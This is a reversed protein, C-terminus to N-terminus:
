KAKKNFDVPFTSGSLLLTAKRDGLFTLSGSYSYSVNAPGNGGITISISGSVAKHTTADMMVNNLTYHIISSFSVKDPVAYQNGSVTGTGNVTYQPQDLTTYSWNNGNHSDMSQMSITAFAGNSSFGLTTKPPSTVPRIFSYDMLYQSKVGLTSDKFNITSDFSNRGKATFTAGNELDFNIGGTVNSFALGVYEAAMYVPVKYVVVNNNDSSSNDKSCSYIIGYSLVILLSYLIRKKM